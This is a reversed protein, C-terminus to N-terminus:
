RMIVARATKAQRAMAMVWWRWVWQCGQVAFIEPKDIVKRKYAGTHESVISPILFPYL